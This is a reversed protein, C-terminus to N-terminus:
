DKKWQMSQNKRGDRQWLGDDDSSRPYDLKMAFFECRHENDVVNLDRFNVCIRHKENKKM